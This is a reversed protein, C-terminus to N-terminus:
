DASQTIASRAPRLAADDAAPLQQDPIDARALDVLSELLPSQVRDVAPDVGHPM